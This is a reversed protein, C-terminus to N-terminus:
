NRCVKICAANKAGTDETLQVFAVQSFLFERIFYLTASRM